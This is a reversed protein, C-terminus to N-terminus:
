RRARGERRAPDTVPPPVFWNDRAIAAADAGAPLVVAEPRQNLFTNATISPRADAEVILMGPTRETPANRGFVNHAIRPAASGRV